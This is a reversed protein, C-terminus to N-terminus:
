FMDSCITHFTLAGVLSYLHRHPHILAATAFLYQQHFGRLLEILSPANLCIPRSHASHLAQSAAVSFSIVLGFPTYFSSAMM